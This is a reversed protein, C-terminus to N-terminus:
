KGGKEYYCKVCQPSKCVYLFKSNEQPVIIQFNDNTILSGCENCFVHGAEIEALQGISSLFSNVDEDFLIKLKPNEM